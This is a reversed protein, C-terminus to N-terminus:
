SGSVTTIKLQIKDSLMTTSLSVKLSRRKRSVSKRIEMAYSCSLEGQSDPDIVEAPCYGM